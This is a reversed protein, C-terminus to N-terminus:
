RSKSEKALSIFFEQITMKHIALLRSLSKMTLNAKGKEIRWYQMRPIDHDYAFDEHSTYGLKVRLDKLKSGIKRLTTDLAEKEKVFALNVV